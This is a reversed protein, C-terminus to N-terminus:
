RRTRENKGRVGEEEERVGDRGKRDKHGVEGRSAAVCETCYLIWEDRRRKGLLTKYRLLRDARIDRKVCGFEM